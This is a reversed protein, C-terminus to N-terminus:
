LSRLSDLREKVQNFFYVTLEPDSTILRVDKSVLNSDLGRRQIINSKLANQISDQASPPYYDLLADMVSLDTLYAVLDQDPYHLAEERQCSAFFFILAL